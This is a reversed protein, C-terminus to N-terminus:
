HSYSVNSRETRVVNFAGMECILLPAEKKFNPKMTVLADVTWSDQETTPQSIRVCRATEIIAISGKQKVLTKLHQLVKSKALLSWDPPVLITYSIVRPPPTTSSADM